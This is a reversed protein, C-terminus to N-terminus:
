FVSQRLNVSLTLAVLPWPTPRLRTVVRWAFSYTMLRFWM